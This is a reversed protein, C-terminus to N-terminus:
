NICCLVWAAQLVVDVMRVFPSWWWKKSPYWDQVQFTKMWEGSLIRKRTTVTSNIQNNSKFISEKLKTGVGFLDRNPQCSESSAIYVAWWQIRQMQILRAFKLKFECSQNKPGFKALFTIELKVSLIVVVM